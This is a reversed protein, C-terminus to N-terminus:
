PRVARPGEREAPPSVPPELAALTRATRPDAPRQRWGRSLPPQAREVDRLKKAQNVLQVVVVRPLVRVRRVGEQPRDEVVDRGDEAALVEIGDGVVVGPAPGALAVQLPESLEAVLGVVREVPLDRRLCVKEAEVVQRWCRRQGAAVPTRRGGTALSSARIGTRGSASLAARPARASALRKVTRAHCM